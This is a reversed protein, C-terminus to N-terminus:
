AAGTLLDCLDTVVMDSDLKRLRTYIKDAQAASISRTACTKFKEELQEPRMWRSPKGQALPVLEELTRGRNTEVRVATAFEPDSRVRDDAEMVTHDILTRIRPDNVQRPAFTTLDVHGEVLAAALCFHLSFKAELPSAPMTYILPKFAMESVGARIAVAEEGPELKQRLRLAAEIGPHTAGCSPYPKLALGYETLIELPQCPTALPALDIPLGDNFTKCYGYTRELIGSAADFGESALLAALVGNRAALGAHLPKVMTGFNARLGGASSAAIGLAIEIRKRDLGLIRTTAIAAALSGFSSTAHWGRAYHATNLARGLKGFLDFGLVYATVLEAGTASVRPALALMAPLIVATPHAYAPHNTDDFDLAHAVAGNYLAADGPTAYRGAAIMAANSNDTQRPSSALTALLPKALPERAGALMCGVCDIMADVARARAEAPLEVPGAAFAALASTPLLDASDM